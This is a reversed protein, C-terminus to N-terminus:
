RIEDTINELQADSYSGQYNKGHFRFYTWGATIIRPHDPIMDHIVLAVDYKRLLQYLVESLWDPDRIELAWRLNKPIVKLFNELREINRKWNPPLQVLIPGLFKGLHLARDLFYNVHGEPNKLKKMHTGFRSYKIVYCFDNPGASKWDEFTSVDAMKYFTNNIEVTDFYRTYYDFWDKVPLDKPYFDGKWHKYQYGSTGIYTRAAM